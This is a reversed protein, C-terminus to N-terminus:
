GGPIIVIFTNSVACNELFQGYHKREVFEGELYFKFADAAAGKYGKYDSSLLVDIIHLGDRGMFGNADQCFVVGNDTDRMFEALRERKEGETMKNEPM